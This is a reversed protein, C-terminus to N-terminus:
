QSNPPLTFAVVQGDAIFAFTMSVPDEGPATLIAVYKGYPLGVVAFRGRVDSSTEIVRSSYAGVIKIWVSRVRREPGEINGYLTPEANPTWPRISSQFWLTVTFWQESSDVVIQISDAGQSLLASNIRVHYRGYPVGQFVCYGVADASAAQRYPQQVSKVNGGEKADSLVITAANPHVGMASVLRIHVRGTPEASAIPALSLFILVSLFHRENYTRTETEGNTAASTVMRTMQGAANYEATTAM